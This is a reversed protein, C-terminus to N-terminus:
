SLSELNRKASLNTPDLIMAKEYAARAKTLKKWRHYLVGLNGFYSSTERLSLAKLYNEESLEYKGQKGHINGLHFYLEPELPLHRLARRAYDEAQEFRKEEDSLIVLNLWSSRHNPNLFIAQDFAEKAKVAKAFKLYLNGLNYWCDPYSRRLSLAKVYSKEAVEFDRLAAQVTGLNM